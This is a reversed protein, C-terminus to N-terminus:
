VDSVPVIEYTDVFSPDQKATARKSSLWGVADDDEDNGDDDDDNTERM